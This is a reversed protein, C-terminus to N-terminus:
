QHPSSNSEGTERKSKDYLPLMNVESGILLQLLALDRQPWAAPSRQAWILGLGRGIHWYFIIFKAKDAGNRERLTWVAAEGQDM